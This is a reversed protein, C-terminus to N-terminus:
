NHRWENGHVPDGNADPIIFWPSAGSMKEYASDVTLQMTDNIPYVLRAQGIEIDYRSRDGIGSFESNSLRDEEYKSIRVNISPSNDPTGAAIVAKNYVPLAFAASYLAALAPALANNKNHNM